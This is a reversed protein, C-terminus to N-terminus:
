EGRFAPKRKELFAAIGEQFDATRACEDMADREAELIVELPAHLAARVLRKSAALSRTPGAAIAAARARWAEEFDEFPLVESVLGLDLAQQATLRPNEFAFRLARKPGLLRALAWSSGGDPALGIATYAYTLQARTSAWTVDAAIAFSLGGGAAWGDVAALFPKEARALANVTAHFHLTAERIWKAAAAGGERLREAFLRVDAGVCFNGGAGTLAIARVSRDKAAEEAAGRMALLMDLDFANRAEPRRMTIVALGDRAEYLIASEPM